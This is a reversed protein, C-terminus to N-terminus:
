TGGLAVNFLEKNPVCLTLTKHTDSFFCPIEAM